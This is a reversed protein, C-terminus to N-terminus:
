HGDYSIKRSLLLYRYFQLINLIDHSTMKSARNASYTTDSSLYDYAIPTTQFM